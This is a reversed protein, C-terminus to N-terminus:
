AKKRSRIMNFVVHIIEKFMTTKRFLLFMIANYVCVVAIVQVFVGVWGTLPIYSIIGFCLLGIMIFLAVYGFYRIYYLLPNKHFTKRYILVPDIIGTTLLRSLPTAFFIGSLGILNYFVISLIINLAAALIPSFRGQVFYGSTTRFTFAAFSVGKVYFEAVIALCVLFSLVYEDGVWATIFSRSVVVLGISVMGYIWATIFFIKDFVTKQKEPDKHTNLNGVSATFAEVIKSVLMNCSSTLLTYNSVLGVNRVTDMASILINDTGNLVVSGLKYLALAKVDRFISKTEKPSLKETSKKIYPYQNDAIVSIIINTLLTFIIGLSLYLIYNRTTLLCVIQAVIQVIRVIEIILLVIYNRQDATFISKKFSFFYSFVTNALFLIYLLELREPINPREKIIVSLFPILLSGVVAIGVGIYRYAKKYLGMLASLKSENNEALPKYMNYVIANGIGLEAFSLVSLVNTFLGNVGLYEAGMIHIFITRSVFSTILSIIQCTLGVAANIAVYKTRSTKHM